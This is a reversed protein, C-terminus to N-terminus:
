NRRQNTLQITGYNNYLGLEEWYNTVTDEKYFPLEVVSDIFFMQGKYVLTSNDIPDNKIDEKCRYIRM